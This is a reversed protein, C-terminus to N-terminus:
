GFEALYGANPVDALLDDGAQVVARGVALYRAGYIRPGVDMSRRMQDFEGDSSCHPRVFWRVRRNRFANSGRAMENFVKM